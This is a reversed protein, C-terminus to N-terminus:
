CDCERSESIRLESLRNILSHLYRSTFQQHQVVQPM